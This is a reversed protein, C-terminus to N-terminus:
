RLEILGAETHRFGCDSYFSKLHPEFDVHVWKIDRTAAERVARKVLGTGIGRHRFEPAVRTDILFAHEGGDWALNVFGVLKGDLHATVYLLSRVLVPGYDTPDTGPWCLDDLASLESVVYPSSIRYETDSM